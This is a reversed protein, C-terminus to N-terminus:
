QRIGGENAHEGGMIARSPLVQSCIEKVGIGLTLIRSLTINLFNPAVLKTNLGPISTGQSSEHGLVTM